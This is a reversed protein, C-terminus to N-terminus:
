QFLGELYVHNARASNLEGIRTADQEAVAAWIHENKRIKELIASFDIVGTGLETFAQPENSYQIFEEWGIKEGIPIRDLICPIVNADLDKLHVAKLRDGIADMVQVPDKGARAAWFVDFEVGVLEPDTCKLLTDFIVEENIKLFEQYHNHYYFEQGSKKAIEGIQNFLELREHLQDGDRFTGVGCVVARSGIRCSYEVLQKWEDIGTHRDLNMAVTIIDIGQDAYIARTEEAPRIPSIKKSTFGPDNAEVHSFGIERLARITGIEDSELAKRVSFLQLGRVVERM